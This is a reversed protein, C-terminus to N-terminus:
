SGLRVFLISSGSFSTYIAYAGGLGLKVLLVPFTMTIAFNIMLLSFTALAMASGRIRNNFMEGLTLAFLLLRGELDLSGMLFLETVTGLRLTMGTAEILLLPRRGIRDVFNFAVVTSAINILGSVVNILLADSEAFGASQWLV